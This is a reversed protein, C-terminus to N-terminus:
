KIKRAIIDLKANNLYIDLRTLAEILLDDRQQVKVYTSLKNEWKKELNSKYLKYKNIKKM